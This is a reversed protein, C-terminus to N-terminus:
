LCQAKPIHYGNADITYPPSCDVVAAAPASVRPAPPRSARPLTHQAPTPAAPVAPLPAAPVAPLPGAATAPPLPPPAAAPGSAVASPSAAAIPAPAASNTAATTPSVVPVAAIAAAVPTQRSGLQYALTSFGVLVAVAAGAGLLAARPVARETLKRQRASSSTGVLSPVLDTMTASEPQAAAPAADVEVFRDSEIRAVVAAREALVVGASEEVWAGIRSPSDRGMVDELALAMERATAFRDSARKSVGRLVIADVAAPINAVHMSPPDPQKELVQRMTAQPSDALFLRKGTLMEWLVVAAAYVDSRRDVEEGRLQEPAMYAAKGKIQGERTTQLRGAAKAVGFDVVRAIGDIGVLVNQPSIDRHVISLPQGQDDTAEHAAHLGFLMEAALTAAISPRIARRGSEGRMLRSIAEGQVYEMVLLLESGEAVVDLTVVVNPHRIRAALRAEDLFMAVFEPDKSFQAHLKKIAVTRAFGVPGMLRGLHVTAMGGAAIEDHIVYRGVRTREM